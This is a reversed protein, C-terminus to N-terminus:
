SNEMASKWVWFALRRVFLMDWSYKANGFYANGFQKPNGFYNVYAAFGQKQVVIWQQTGFHEVDFIM